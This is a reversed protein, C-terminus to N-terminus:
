TYLLEISDTIAPDPTAIRNRVFAHVHEVAPVHRRRQAGFEWGDTVHTQLPQTSEEFTM